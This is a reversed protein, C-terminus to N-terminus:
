LVGDRLATATPAVTARLRDTAHQSRYTQIFNVAVSLSVIFIIIAANILEGVFASVISAFLLIAVLPNAFQLALDLLPSRQKEPAPDNPGFQGLRRAAEASTLGRAPPSSATM